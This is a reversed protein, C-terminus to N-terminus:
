KRVRINDFSGKNTVDYLLLLATSIPIFICM